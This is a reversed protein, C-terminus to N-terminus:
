VLGSLFKDASIIRINDKIFDVNEERIVQYMFPIRLREGFYKLSPSINKAVAKVEVCFWPKGNIAVLFDIEHQELDRVYYLQAKYGEVDYLFNCFKLLHLAMMNELRIGEERIESWDWLYLKPEKRLSKIASNQFPYIRFHYYFKELIEIWASMTKHTVKLDERLSNLSFLSGVKQPLLEVLMQLASIDRLNEIDRIDEKILRDARENHWRRLDRENHKIFIEPFGGFRFLKEFIDKRKESEGELFMLKEFLTYRVDVGLLEHLSLLHLRYSRYRGLLSDDGKRYVDLRASGTVLISFAKKHKDYEGKLYNKWKKYKHIEDFICLKKEAQFIGDLIRKRDQRNDWNLYEYTNKFFNDGIQMSLTTKGVQRPGSIFVMKDRLDGIIHKELYRKLM